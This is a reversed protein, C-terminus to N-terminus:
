GALGARKERLEAARYAKAEDISYHRGHQRGLNIRYITIGIFNDSLKYKKALEARTAGLAAAAAIAQDRVANKVITAFKTRRCPALAFKGVTGAISDDVELTNFVHEAHRTCRRRRSTVFGDLEQHSAVEVTRAGCFRCRM